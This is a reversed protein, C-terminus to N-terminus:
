PREPMRELWARLEGYTIGDVFRADNAISLKAMERLWRMIPEPLLLDAPLVAAHGNGNSKPEGALERELKAIRGRARSLQQMAEAFSSALKSISADLVEVTGDDAHFHHAGNETSLTAM